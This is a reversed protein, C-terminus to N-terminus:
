NNDLLDSNSDHAQSMALEKCHTVIFERTCVLTDGIKGNKAPPGIKKQDLNAVTGSKRKDRTRAVTVM